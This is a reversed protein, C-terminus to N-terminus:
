TARPFGERNPTLPTTPTLPRLKPTRRKHRILFWERKSPHQTPATANMQTGPEADSPDVEWEERFGALAENTVDGALTGSQM